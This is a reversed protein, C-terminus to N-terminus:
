VDPHKDPYHPEPECGQNICQRFLKGQGSEKLTQYLRDFATRRRQELKKEKTETEEQARSPVYLQMLVSEKHNALVSLQASNPDPTIEPFIPHDYEWDSVDFYKNDILYATAIEEVQSAPGFVRVKFPGYHYNYLRPQEVSDGIQEM